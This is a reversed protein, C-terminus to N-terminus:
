SKKPVWVQKPGQQKSSKVSIVPKVNNAKKKVSEKEVVEAKVFKDKAKSVPSGKRAKPPSATRSRNHKKTMDNSMKTNTVLSANMLNFYASMINFACLKCDSIGCPKHSSPMAFMNNVNSIDKSEVKVKKCAHTLHGTSGCNNCSKRSTNTFSASNNKKNANMKGNRNKKKKPEKSGLGAKSEDTTTSKKPLKVKEVNQKEQDEVLMEQKILMERENLPESTPKKFVPNSVNKLVHPVGDKVTNSQASDEVPKKGIKKSSYDFGIATKKELCQKDIIEKAINASNKYAQLKSELEVLQTRLAIEIDSNCKVKNELYENKQKLDEVTIAVLELKSNKADLIQNKLVLKANEEELALMSRHINITEVSLDEVMQKYESNSLDTTSLLSVQPSRPSTGPSDAMLAFNGYEGEEDNDSDDWNKGEAIYARGQQKKLLEDYKQKLEAYSERKQFQERKDKAQKPKRCETAFHGLENCNYCRFKSRDVSGTKYGDRSSSGSASEGKQFRGASSRFKYKPNRRFRINNIRGALYAMSQDELQDLEELTYYDSENNAVLGTTLEAEITEEKLIQPKDAKTVVDKPETAVLATTKLLATNKSDVTGSGYIIVRQEQEMEYTRLKGYLKELSMTHIDDRERIASIKHEVHYPLTLMFKRNTERLPYTKGQISLENLLKNYREFVQTISEGSLSKFAEYQSTLIDLRNEKVEETGEMILEITDWMHKATSCNVIQHCMDSDMSDVIILQLNTDLAVSEKDSDSFESIEKPIFGQPVRLDGESTEPVIKMPVFPGMRLYEEYKPNAARIYLTMKKKWLNYNVRDFPPVKISGIKQSSM